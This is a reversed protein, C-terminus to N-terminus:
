SVVPLAACYGMNYGALLWPGDQLHQFRSAIESYIATVFSDDINALFVGTKDSGPAKRSRPFYSHVLSRLQLQLSGLAERDLSPTTKSFQLRRMRRWPRVVPIVKHETSVIEHHSTLIGKINTPAAITPAVEARGWKTKLRPGGDSANQETISCSLHEHTSRLKYACSQRNQQNQSKGQQTDAFGTSQPSTM